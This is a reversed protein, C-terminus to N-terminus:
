FISFSFFQFSIRHFYRMLSVEMYNFFYRKFSLAFATTTWICEFAYNAFIQIVLCMRRQYVSFWQLLCPMELGSFNRPSTKKMKEHSLHLTPIYAGERVSAINVCTWTQNSVYNHRYKSQEGHILYEQTQQPHQWM